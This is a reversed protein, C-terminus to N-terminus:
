ADSMVQLYPSRGHSLWVVADLFQQAEANNRNYMRSNNVTLMVGLLNVIVQKTSNYLGDYTAWFQKDLETNVAMSDINDEWFRYIVTLQNSQVRLQYDLTHSENNALTTYLALACGVYNTLFAYKAFSQIINVTDSNQFNGTHIIRDSGLDHGDFMLTMPRAIQMGIPEYGNDSIEVGSGSLDVCVLQRPQDTYQGGVKIVAFDARDAATVWYKSGSLTHNDLAVTDIDHNTSFCGIQESYGPVVINQGLSRAYSLCNRATQHQQVCHALGINVQSLQLFNKFWQILDQDTYNSIDFDFAPQIESLFNRDFTNSSFDSFVEIM